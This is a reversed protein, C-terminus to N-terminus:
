LTSGCVKVNRGNTSAASNTDIFQEIGNADMYNGERKVKIPVIMNGKDTLIESIVVAGDKPFTKVSFRIDSDDTFTNGEPGTEVLCDKM